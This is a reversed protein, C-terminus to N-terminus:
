HDRSALNEGELLAHNVHDGVHLMSSCLAIEGENDSAWEMVDEPFMNRNDSNERRWAEAAASLFDLLVAFPEVYSRFGQVGSHITSTNSMPFPMDIILRAFLRGEPDWDVKELHIIGNGVRLAPMRRSSIFFPYTMAYITRM